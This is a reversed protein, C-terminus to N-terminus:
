PCPIEELEHTIDTESCTNTDAGQSLKPALAVGGGRDPRFRAPALEREPGVRGTGDRPIGAPYEPDRDSGNKTRDLDSGSRALNRVPAPRLVMGAEEPTRDKKRGNCRRCAVVVNELDNTGDPDVHDYTGGKPGRRDTWVVRVGCYRCLGGDREVIQECLLRDRQLAKKRRWRLREAPIATEDRTPQWDTWDHFYFAGAELERITDRCRRCDALTDGAHWLGSAVLADAAKKPAVDALYAYDRLLHAAVLGNAKASAVEVGAVLWLARGDKGAMRTKSHRAWQDDVRFWTM